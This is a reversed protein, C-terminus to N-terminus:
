DIIETIKVNRKKFYDEAYKFLKGFSTFRQQLAAPVIGKDYQMHWLGTEDIISHLKNEGQFLRKDVLGMSSTPAKDDIVKLELIRNPSTNQTPSVTYEFPM